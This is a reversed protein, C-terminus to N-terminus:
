DFLGQVFWGGGRRDRFVWLREGAPNEALYYDRSLDYGDWWGSEIREPLRSLRLLGGYAPQGDRVTLPRPQDFLWLPRPAAPAPVRTHHGPACYCWAREPRHDPATALGRVAAAGLRSRLRELLAHDAPREGDDFLPAGREVFPQWDAVRLQVAIVPAPLEVRELRERFLNLLQDADRSASLLGQHFRTPEADQHRLVWDLRQTAGGRGRLFGCLSQILRRAPFVLASRQGIETLLELNQEFVAPPQWPPRPDAVVGFLRDLLLGLEPGSRRLLAARPLALCDGISHLGIEQILARVPADRTLRALPVEAL